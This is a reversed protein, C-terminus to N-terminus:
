KGKAPQPKLNPNPARGMKRAVEAALSFLLETRQRWDSSIFWSEGEAWSHLCM